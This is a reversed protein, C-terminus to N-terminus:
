QGVVEKQLLKAQWKAAEDPREWSEYLRVLERLSDLTHPHDACGSPQALTEDNWQARCFM